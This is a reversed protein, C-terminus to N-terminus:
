QRRDDVRARMLESEDFDLGCETCFTIRKPIRFLVGTTGIRLLSAKCRPCRVIRSIKWYLTLVITSFNILLWFPIQKESLDFEMETLWLAALVATTFALYGFAYPRSAANIRDRINAARTTSAERLDTPLPDHDM